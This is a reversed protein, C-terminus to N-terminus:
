PSGAVYTYTVQRQAEIRYGAGEVVVTYRYTGNGPVTDDFICSFPPATVTRLQQRPPAEGGTDQRFLTVERVGEGTVTVSVNLVNRVKANTTVELGVQPTPGPAPAPTCAALSVLGFAAVAIKRM